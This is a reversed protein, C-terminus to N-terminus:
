YRFHSEMSQEDKCKKTDIYRFNSLINVNLIYCEVLQLSDFKHMVNEVFKYKEIKVRKAM